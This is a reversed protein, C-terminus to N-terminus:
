VELLKQDDKTKKAHEPKDRRKKLDKGQGKRAEKVIMSGVIDM